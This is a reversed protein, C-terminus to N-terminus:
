KVIKRISFLDYMQQTVEPAAEYVPGGISFENDALMNQLNTIIAPHANKAKVNKIISNMRSVITDYLLRKKEPQNRAIFICYTEALHVSIEQAVDSFHVISIVD